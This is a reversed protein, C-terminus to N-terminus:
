PSGLPEMLAKLAQLMAPHDWAREGRAGAIINGAPDLLYTTPLGSVQWGELAMAEDIVIPFSLGARAVFRQAQQASPGVHVGLVRLGEAQMLSSLRELGPMETRCPTCWVAWFNVLLFHGRFDAISLTGGRAAPLAFDAVARPPKVPELTRVTSGAQPAGLALLLAFGTIGAGARIVRQRM